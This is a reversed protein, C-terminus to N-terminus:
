SVVARAKRTSLGGGGPEVTVRPCSKMHLSVIPRAPAAASGLPTLSTQEMQLPLSPRSPNARWIGRQRRGNGCRGLSAPAPLHLDSTTTTTTTTTPALIPLTTRQLYSSNQSKATDKKTQEDRQKEGMENM